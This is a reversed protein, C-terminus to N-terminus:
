GGDSCYTAVVNADDLKGSKVAYAHIHECEERRVTAEPILKLANMANDINGQHLAAAIQDRLGTVSHDSPQPKDKSDDSHPSRVLDYTYNGAVAIAVAFAIAGIGYTPHGLLLRWLRTFRAQM